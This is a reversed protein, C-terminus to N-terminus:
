VNDSIYCIHPQMMAMNGSTCKDKALGDALIIHLNM